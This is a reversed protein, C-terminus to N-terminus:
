LQITHQAELDEVGAFPNETKDEVANLNERVSARCMPCLHNIKLWEQICPEHFLHNCIPPAKIEAGEVFEDCCIPCADMGKPSSSLSRKFIKNPIKNMDHPRIGVEQVTRNGFDAALLFQRFAEEDM